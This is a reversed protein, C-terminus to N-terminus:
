VIKTLQAPTDSGIVRLSSQTKRSVLGDKQMRQFRSRILILGLCFRGIQYILWPLVLLLIALPLSM